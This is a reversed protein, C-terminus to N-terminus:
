SFFDYEAEAVDRSVGKRRMIDNVYYERESKRYAEEKDTDTAVTEKFIQTAKDHEKCRTGPSLKDGANPQSLQGARKAPDM